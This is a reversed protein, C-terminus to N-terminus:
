QRVEIRNGDPDRIFFVSHEGRRAEIVPVGRRRLEEVFALREGVLLGWHNCGVSDKRRRGLRCRFPQFIELVVPGAGAAIEPSPPRALKVFRCDCGIGFITRVLAAPLTEERIVTFGFVKRYFDVLRGADNTFLGLHDCGGSFAGGM